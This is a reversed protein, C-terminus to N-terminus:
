VSSASFTGQPINELPGQGFPSRSLRLHPSCMVHLHLKQKSDSSLQGASFWFEHVGNKLGKFGSNFGM